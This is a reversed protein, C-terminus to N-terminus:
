WREIRCIVGYYEYEEFNLIKYLEIPSAIEDLYNGNRVYWDYVSADLLSLNKGYKELNVSIKAFARNRAYFDLLEILTDVTYSSKACNELYIFEASVFDNSLMLINEIISRKYAQYEDGIVEDLLSQAKGVNGDQWLLDAYTLKMWDSPNLRSLYFRKAEDYDHIAVYTQMLIVDCDLEGYTAHLYNFLKFNDEFNQDNHNIYVKLILAFGFKPHETLVKDVFFSTQEYNLDYYYLNALFCYLWVNHEYAPDKLLSALKTIPEQNGEILMIRLLNLYTVSEEDKARDLALLVEEMSLNEDFFKLYLGPWSRSDDISVDPSPLNDRKKVSYDSLKIDTENVIIQSHIKMTVNLIM